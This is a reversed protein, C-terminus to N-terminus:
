TFTFSGASTVNGASTTVKLKASAGAAVGTPMTARIQTASDVTFALNVSRTGSVLAVSIVNTFNTGTITVQTGGPGSTPTFSSITPATGGGGGGGSTITFSSTSTVSGASTTVKWTASRGIPANGPVTATILTPSNVTFSTSLTGGVFVMQVNSVNTFNTGTITVQSLRPGSTPNFSTITPASSGGGGSPSAAWIWTLWNAISTNTSPRNYQNALWVQGAGASTSAAPDPSAGSYDGWRCPTCSFDSNFGTAQKVLQFSSQAGTGLKTVQQIAVYATSSSTNFGLVMSDGFATTAGNVIRDPSIAANYVYLSGSTVTGSQYLSPGSPNIEYWRAQSGAGGAVTHQTWIAVSGHSPDIASVAQTLRADLTDLEDGTGKQPASPPYDFSSVTISSGTGAINATGNLNKTVSFVELKNAASFGPDYASVVYGTSSSDVQNAPVPTFAQTSDSNLLNQKVGTASPWGSTGAAPCSTITGAAPKTAWMVDSRDFFFGGAYINAGILLFDKTDGLKPYDPLDAGYGFDVDYKCFDSASSPSGTKSFGIEMNDSNFDLVAYYFRSTDPDWIVQPDSLGNINDGTLTDLGASSISNGNRDYIAYKLNILEVYRTTGVAGTTDPPTVDTESVGGWAVHPHAKPGSASASGHSRAAREKGQAVAEPNKFLYGRAKQGPSSPGYPNGSSGGIAAAPAAVAALALAVV